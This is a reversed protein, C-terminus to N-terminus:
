YITGKLNTYRLLSRQCSRVESNRKGQLRLFILFKFCILMLCLSFPPSVQFLHSLIGVIIAHCFRYIFFSFHITALLFLELLFCVCQHFLWCRFHMQSQSRSSNSIPDVAEIDGTFLSGDCHRVKIINWNYFDTVTLYRHIASINASNSSAMAMTSRKRERKDLTYLSEEVRQVLKIFVSRRVNM